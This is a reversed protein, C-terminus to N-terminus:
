PNCTAPQLDKQLRSILGDFSGNSFIVVVDGPQTLSQLKAIIGDTIPEYFAPKGMAQIDAILREPNLRESDALQTARAVAGVIVGAAATFAEPLVEQFIARRSTNSRPEFLAWIKAGAFRKQLGALTQRIATPHHGFDDIITVGNVTGIIEQRRKIGKFELLAQRITALPIGYFHAATVAMAANRINHEGTMM